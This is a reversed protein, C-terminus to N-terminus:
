DQSPTPGATSQTVPAPAQPFTLHPLDFLFGAALGPTATLTAAILLPLFRTM